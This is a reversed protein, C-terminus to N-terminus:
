VNNELIITEKCKSYKSGFMYFIIELTIINNRTDIEINGNEYTFENERENYYSNGESDGDGLWVEVLEGCIIEENNIINIIKFIYYDVFFTNNVELRYFGNETKNVRATNIFKIINKLPEDRYYPEFYSRMKKDGLLFKDIINEQFCSQIVCSFTLVMALIKYKM